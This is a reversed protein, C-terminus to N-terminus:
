RPLPTMRLRSRRDQRQPQAEQEFRPPQPDGWYSHGQDQGQSQDPGSPEPAEVPPAPRRPLRPPPVPGARAARVGLATTTFLCPARHDSTSGASRRRAPRPSGSSSRRRGRQRCLPQSPDIRGAPDASSGARGAPRGGRGRARLAGLRARRRRHRRQIPDPHLPRRVVGQGAALTPGRYRSRDLRGRPTGISAGYVDDVRFGIWALAENLSPKDGGRLEAAAM